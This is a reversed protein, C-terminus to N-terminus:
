GDFELPFKIAQSRQEVENEELVDGCKLLGGWTVLSSFLHGLHESPIM